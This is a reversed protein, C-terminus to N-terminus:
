EYYRRDEEIEEQTIMTKHEKKIWSYCGFVMPLDVIASFVYYFPSVFLIYFIGGELDVNLSIAFVIDILFYLVARYVCVIFFIGIGFNPTVAPRSKLYKKHQQVILTFLTITAVIPAIFMSFKMEMLQLVSDKQLFYGVTTTIGAVILFYTSYVVWFHSLELDSEIEELDDLARM